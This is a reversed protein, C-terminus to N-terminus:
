KTEYSKYADNHESCHKCSLPCHAQMFSPNKHCEGQGKYWVCHGSLDMCTKPHIVLEMHAEDSTIKWVAVMSEKSLKHRGPSDHRTDVRADRVWWEHTLMTTVTTSQNPQLTGKEHARSGHIWFLEVPHPHQNVFTIQVEIQKWMWTNFEDFSATQLRAFNQPELKQGRRGFLFLPRNTQRLTDGHPVHFFRSLGNMKNYRVKVTQLIDEWWIGQDSMDAFPYPFVIQEDCIKEVDGPTVFVMLLNRELVDNEDLMVTQLQSLSVIHMVRSMAKQVRFQEHLKRRRERYNRNNGYNNNNSRGSYQFNGWHFQFGRHQQHHNYQQNQQQQQPTSGTRDYHRRSDVDSLTEFAQVVKHFEAAAQEAPIDKQKDPHTLLAKRRYASKIEKTTASRKVGLVKYLDEGTTLTVTLLLVLLPSLRRFITSLVM